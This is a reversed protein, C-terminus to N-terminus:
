YAEGIGIHVAIPIGLLTDPEREDPTLGGLVQLGPIRYGLDLRIPGAPTDYRGGAGCSLHLHDFRFDNKHPSVDSADCFTAVSLPGAIVYRVEASAEWLTFGGTPTRCRDEVPGTGSGCEANIKGAEIEPTLFPVIDYPGVGRIPYGRNQNPGGSFFGRFYTLQYDKTRDASPPAAGNNPGNEVVAGYNSAELLGISARTAFVVKKRYVPVYTRVEPQIKIDNANGGFINGAVQLSNGIFIGKSPHIKDDRFDFTTYLEPYSIVVLSLTPDKANVYAFPYAIQTNHTLSGFFKWISREVGVANRVEAYGIVREDPLPNPNLLVPYINLEPRLVARLRAEIFSPQALEFRLREEPLFNTPPVLNNVRLPYFVVGPRFQVSFTRLGGFFNRDEWGILGHVNTKLADFEIGGGLKLTRLRSPELKVRVPIVNPGPPDPLEPTLEVSALVGLDLLAQQADELEKESYPKGPTIDITRRIQRDPLGGLGEIHVEGFVCPIGPTVAFVVDVAHTVIDVAADSKVTAYAYGNDTLARRVNGEAKKFDDEAFPKELPLDSAAARRASAAIAPPLGDLGDVHVTKVFVPQGEEVVVEVRVRKDSLQHIRGARAHVDYYGKSRYFAEVRALDRQLVFRDFLSYEFLVGRFLMLFKPSETTAIKDKVDDDDLEKTGRIQVEDVASRGEPVTKCGCLMAIAAVVVALGLFDSALRTRSM